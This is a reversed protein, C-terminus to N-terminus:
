GKMPVAHKADLMWGGFNVGDATEVVAVYRAFSQTEHADGRVRSTHVRLPWEGKLSSFFDVAANRATVGEPTSLEPANIGEVRITAESFTSFGLDIRVILTDGDIVREVDARYHWLQDDAM